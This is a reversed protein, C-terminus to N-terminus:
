YEKNCIHLNDVRKCIKSSNLINTKKKKWFFLFDVLTSGIDTLIVNTEQNYLNCKKGAYPYRYKGYEKLMRKMGPHSANPVSSADLPLLDELIAGNRGCKVAMNKVEEAGHEKSFCGVQLNQQM